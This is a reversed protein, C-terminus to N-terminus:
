QQLLHNQQQCLQLTQLHLKGCSCLSL